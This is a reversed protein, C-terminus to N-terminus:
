VLPGARLAPVREIALTLDSRWCFHLVKGNSANQSKAFLPFNIRYVIRIQAPEIVVRDILTRLIERRTSWDAQSLNASVTESFSDVCALTERLATQERSQSALTELKTEVNALHQRARSLRPEFETRDILGDTHIDIV